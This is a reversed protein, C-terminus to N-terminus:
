RKYIRQNRNVQRLLGLWEITAFVSGLVIWMLLGVLLFLASIFFPWGFLVGWSAVSGVHFVPGLLAWHVLAGIALYGGMVVIDGIKL